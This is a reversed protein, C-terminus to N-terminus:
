SEFEVVTSVSYRFDLNARRECHRVRDCAIPVLLGNMQEVLPVRRAIRTRADRHARARSSSRV